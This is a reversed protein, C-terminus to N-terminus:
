HSGAAAAATPHQWSVARAAPTTPVPRLIEAAPPLPVKSESAKPASPRVGDAGDKGTPRPIPLMEDGIAPGTPGAPPVTVPEPVPRLNAPAVRVHVDKDAEFLRGDVLRFQVTVRLKEVSPWVKWPLVLVYGTSLLGTRWSHRLEDQGIDWSGIPRKVGDTPIEAAQVIATGPARTVNGEPDRPEVHVELAEDGPLAHDDRGGTGRGLTLSRVPYGPQGREPADPPLGEGRLNRLEQELAQNYAGCRGVEDRLQRVQCERRRLESEVLASNSRCGTASAALAVGVLWAVSPRM